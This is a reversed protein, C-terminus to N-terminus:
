ETKKAAADTLPSIDEPIGSAKCIARYAEDRKQMKFRHNVTETTDPQRIVISLSFSSAVGTGEKSLSVVDSLLFAESGSAKDGAGRIVCLNKTTLVLKAPRTTNMHVVSWTGFTREKLESLITKPPAADSPAVIAYPSLKHATNQNLTKARSEALEAVSAAVVTREPQQTIVDMDRTRPHTDGTTATTNTTNTPNTTNTAAAPSTTTTTPPTSTSHTSTSRTSTYAKIPSKVPKSTQKSKEPLNMWFWYPKSRYKMMPDDHSMKEKIFVKVGFWIKFGLELMYWPVVLTVVYVVCLLVVVLWTNKPEEWTLLVVIKEAVRSIYNIKIIAKTTDAKTGEYKTKTKQYTKAVAVTVKGLFQGLLGGGREVREVEVEEPQALLDTVVNANDAPANVVVPTPAATVKWYNYKIAWGKMMLAICLFIAGPVCIGYRVLAIYYLLLGGTHLPNQWHMVDEVADIADVIPSFADIIRNISTMLVSVSFEPTPPQEYRRARRLDEETLPQSFENLFSRIGWGKDNVADGDAITVDDVDHFEDVEPDDRMTAM